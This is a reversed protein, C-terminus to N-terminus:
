GAAAPNLVGDITGEGVSTEYIEHFRLGGVDPTLFISTHRECGSPNLQESYSYSATGAQDGTLSLIGSCRTSRGQGTIWESHSGGSGDVITRLSVGQTTGRPAHQTGTGAWSGAIGAPAVQGVGPGAGGSPSSGVRKIETRREIVTRTPKASSAVVTTPNSNNTSGGLSLALTLAVVGLLAVAGAGVLVPALWSPREPNSSAGVGLPATPPGQHPM